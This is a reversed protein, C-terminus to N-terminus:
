DVLCVNQLFCSFVSMHLGMFCYTSGYSANECGQGGFDKKEESLFLVPFVIIVHITVKQSFIKAYLSFFFM